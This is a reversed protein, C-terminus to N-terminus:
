PIVKRTPVGENQTTYSFNIDQKENWECIEKVPVNIEM